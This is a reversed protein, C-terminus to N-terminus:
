VKKCLTLFRNRGHICCVTAVQVGASHRLLRSTLYLTSLCLCTGSTRVEFLTKVMKEGEGVWKSTLSSASISFFTAQSSGVHFWGPPPCPPHPDKWTTQRLTRFSLRSHPNPLKCRVRHGCSQCAADKWHGSTWVLSGPPPHVVCTGTLACRLATSCSLSALCFYVRAYGGLLHAFGKSYSRASIPCFSLRLSLRNRL